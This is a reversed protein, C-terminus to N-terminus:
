YTLLNPGHRPIGASHIRPKGTLIEFPCGLIPFNSKVRGFGIRPPPTLISFIWEGWKFSIRVNEVPGEGPNHKWTSSQSLCLSYRISDIGMWFPALIPPLSAWFCWPRFHNQTATYFNPAQGNYASWSPNRMHLRTWKVMISRLPPTVM